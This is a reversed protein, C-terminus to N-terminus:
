LPDLSIPFPRAREHQARDSRPVELRSRLRTPKAGFDGPEVLRLQAPPQAKLRGPLKTKLQSADNMTTSNSHTCSDLFCAIGLSAISSLLRIDKRIRASSFASSKRATASFWVSRVSKTMRCATRAALATM